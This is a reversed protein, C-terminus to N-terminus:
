VYTELLKVSGEPFIKIEVIEAPILV